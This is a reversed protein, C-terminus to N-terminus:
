GLTSSVSKEVISGLPVYYTRVECSEISALLLRALMEDRRHRYIIKYTTWKCAFHNWTRAYLESYHNWARAYLDFSELDARRICTTSHSM